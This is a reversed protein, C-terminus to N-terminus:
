HFQEIVLNSKLIENDTKLRQLYFFLFISDMEEFNRCLITKELIKVVLACDQLFFYHKQMQEYWSILFYSVKNSLDTDSESYNM